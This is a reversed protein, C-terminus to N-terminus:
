LLLDHETFDTKHNNHKTANLESVKCICLRGLEHTSIVVLIAGDVNTVGNTNKAEKEGTTCGGNTLVGTIDVVVAGDVNTVSDAKQSEKEGTSNSGGLREQGPFCVRGRVGKTALSHGGDTSVDGSVNDQGIVRSPKKLRGEDFVTHGHGNLGSGGDHTVVGSLSEKGDLTTSDQISDTSFICRDDEGGSTVTSGTRCTVPTTDDDDTVTGVVNRTSGGENFTKLVGGVSTCVRNSVLVASGHRVNAALKTSGLDGRVVLDVGDGKSGATRSGVVVM